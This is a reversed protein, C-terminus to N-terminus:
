EGTGYGGSKLFSNIKNYKLVVQDAYRTSFGGRNVSASGQNYASLAKVWDGGYADIREKLYLAGFEINKHANLLDSPSLGYKAGTAPMVQMMGLAGGSSRAKETFTSEKHAVAMLLLPDIKYIKAEREILFILNQASAVTYNGNYSRVYTVLGKNFRSEPEDFTSKASTVGDTTLYIGTYPDFYTDWGFAEDAIIASVPLYIVDGVTLIDYAANTSTSGDGSGDESDNLDSDDVTEETAAMDIEGNEEAGYVTEDEPLVTEDHNTTADDSADAIAPAQTMVDKLLEGFAGDEKSSVLELSVGTMVEAAVPNQSNKMWQQTYDKQTSETKTLTLTRSEWNMNWEFGLIKGMEATLPIYTLNKYLFFPNETQYNEIREGNIVINKNFYAGQVTETACITISSFLLITLSLWVIFLKKAM